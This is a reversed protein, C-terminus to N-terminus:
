REDLIKYLSKLFTRGKPTLKVTDKRNDLLNETMVVLGMEEEFVALKRGVDFQSLGLREGVETQTYDKGDEIIKAYSLFTHVMAVSIRDRLSRFAETIEILTQLPDKHSVM